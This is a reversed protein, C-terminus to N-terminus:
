ATWSKGMDVLEMGECYSRPRSVRVTPTRHSALQQLLPFPTWHIPEVPWSCVSLDSAKGSDLVGDGMSMESGRWGYQSSHPYITNIRTGHSPCTSALSLTDDHYCCPRDLARLHLLEDSRTFAPNDLSDASGAWSRLWFRGSLEDFHNFRRYSSRTQDVKAQILIARYRRVAVFALIIIVTVIILLIALCAGILRARTMRVDCREGMFWFDDGALCRCVPLQHPHHTCIGHHHCYDFHCVSSCSYNATGPQSVCKYGASCQLLWDCIDGQLGGITINTIRSTRFTKKNRVAQALGTRELLSTPETMSLWELARSTKFELLSQVARGSSWVGLLRSFGPAKQLYPKMWATTDNELNVNSALMPEEVVIQLLLEVSEVRIAAPQDPVIYFKPSNTSSRAPTSTLASSPEQSPHTTTRQPPQQPLGSTPTHTTTSSPSWQWFKDYKEVQVEGDGHGYDTTGTIASNQTVGGVTLAARPTSSSDTFGSTWSYAKTIGPPSPITNRTPHADTINRRASEVATQTEKDTQTFSSSTYVSHTPSETSQPSDTLSRSSSPLTMETQEFKDPLESTVTQAAAVSVFSNIQSINPHVPDAEVTSVVNNLETFHTNFSHTGSYVESSSSSATPETHTQASFDDRLTKSSSKLPDSTVAFTLHSNHRDTSRQSRWSHPREDGSTGSVGVGHATIGTHGTRSSSLEAPASTRLPVSASSVRQDMQTAVDKGTNKSTQISTDQIAKGLMLASSSATEDTLAMLTQLNKETPNSPTSTNLGASLGHQFYPRTTNRAAMPGDTLHAAGSTEAGNNPKEEPLPLTERDSRGAVPLGQQPSTPNLLGQDLSSASSVSLPAFGRELGDYTHDRGEKMGRAVEQDVPPSNTFSTGTPFWQTPDRGPHQTSHDESSNREDEQVYYALQVANLSRGAGTWTLAAKNKDCGSLLAKGGSALARDEEKWVCRVSISSGNELWVLKLLVKGGLPIDIVWTCVLVQSTKDSQLIMPDLSSSNTFLGPLTLNIHGAPKQDLSVNGGCHHYLSALAKDTTVIFLLLCAHLQM